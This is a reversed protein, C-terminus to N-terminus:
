CSYIYMGFCRLGINNHPCWPLCNANPKYVTCDSVSSESGSCTINVILSYNLLTGFEGNEMVAGGINLLIMIIYTMLRIM